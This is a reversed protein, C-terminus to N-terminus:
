GMGARGQGGWCSSLPSPPTPARCWEGTLTLSPPSGLHLVSTEGSGGSGPLWLQGM